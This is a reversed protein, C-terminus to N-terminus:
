AIKHINALYSAQEETIIRCKFYRMEQISAHLINDCSEFYPIYCHINELISYYTDKDKKVKKFLVNKIPEHREIIKSDNPDSYLFLFKEHRNEKLLDLVKKIKYGPDTMRFPFYIIIKDKSFEKISNLSVEDTKYNFISLSPDILLSNVEVNPSFQNFYIKQNEVAVVILDASRVLEIDVEEYKKLFAPNIEITKSVPCWYVTKFNHYTEKLCEISLGLYNSEYIVVDQISHTLINYMCRFLSKAGELSREVSAGGKPFYKYRVLKVQNLSDKEFEKLLANGEDSVQDESPLVITCVFKNGQNIFRLINSIFRNVNGDCQLEYKNDVYNRMSVIPCYLISKKNSFFEKFTM